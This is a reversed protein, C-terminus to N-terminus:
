GWHAEINDQASGEEAVQSYMAAIDAYNLAIRRWMEASPLRQRLAQLDQEALVLVGLFSFAFTVSGQDGARRILEAEEAIKVLMRLCRQIEPTRDKQTKQSVVRALERATKSVLLASQAVAFARARNWAEAGKFVREENGFLVRVEDNQKRISVYSM